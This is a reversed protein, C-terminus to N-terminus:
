EPTGTGVFGIMRTIPGTAPEVFYQGLQEKGDAMRFAVTVRAANQITDTKVVNASAGPAMQTFMGVYDSVAQPGELPAETRPDAYTASTALASKIAASRESPEAMAWASFFTEIETM